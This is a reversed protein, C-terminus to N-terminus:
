PTKRRRDILDQLADLETDDLEHEVLHVALAGASGEFFREIAEGVEQRGVAEVPVRPRYVFARGQKEREVIDKEVMRNLLTQVTNYAVGAGGGRVHDLVDQVSAQGDLAWLARLIQLERTGISM